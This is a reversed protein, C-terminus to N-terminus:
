RQPIHGFSGWGWCLFHVRLASSCSLGEAGALHHTVGGLDQCFHTGLLLLCRLMSGILLIGDWGALFLGSWVHTMLLPLNKALPGM